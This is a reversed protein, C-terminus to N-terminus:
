RRRPRPSLSTSFSSLGKPAFARAPARGKLPIPGQEEYHFLTKTSMHTAEDCLIEKNQNLFCLRAALNVTDGVIGCEHRQDSGIKGCFVKGTAIGITCQINLDKLAEKLELSATVARFPDDEHVYPPISFAAVFTVGKDDICCQRIMGEFREITQTAVVYFEHIKEQTASDVTAVEIHPTVFMVTATCLAGLLHLQNAELKDKVYTPLFSSLRSYLFSSAPLRELPEPKSTEYISLIKLGGEPLELASIIGKPPASPDSGQLYEGLITWVSHTVVVDGTQSANLADGLERVPTGSLMAARKNRGLVLFCLSGAAVAIHLTLRVGAARYSALQSHQVNIGCKVANLTAQALGEAPTAAHKPGTFLVFLADGAFYMVDGGYAEIICLLGSFYQSVHRSVEEIGEHGMAAYEENLKTFGSIDAVLLAGQLHERTLSECSYQPQHLLHLLRQPVFNCMQETKRLLDHDTQHLESRLFDTVKDDNAKWNCFADDLTTTSWSRRRFAKKTFINKEM